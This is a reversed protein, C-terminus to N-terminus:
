NPPTQKKLSRGSVVSGAGFRARLADMAREGELARSESGTFFDSAAAGADIFESLGIGILRYAAGKIEARLLERGVAFLTKATQTALPLSKRRTIIRFDASRLKLTVVRGATAETRAQRAVRECLPWLRDELDALGSLDDNFTTEASISKRAQDPDVLRADEGRALQALHLGHVGFRSALDKLDAQALDGVKRYGAAELTRVFVPGVGPLIGVPRSALFSRAEAAGIVAFGRPKDLDSAIKALFKNPALGISVTLGIEVEIEAQITPHRVPGDM